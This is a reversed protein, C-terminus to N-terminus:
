RAIIDILVMLDNTYFHLICDQSSFVDLILKHISNPGNGSFIHLLLFSDFVVDPLGKVTIKVM